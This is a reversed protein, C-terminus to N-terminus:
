REKSRYGSGCDVGDHGSGGDGGDGTDAMLATVVAAAM